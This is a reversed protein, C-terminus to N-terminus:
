LLAHFDSPKSRIEAELAEMLEADVRAIHLEYAERGLRSLNMTELKVIGRDFGAEFRIAVSVVPQITIKSVTAAIASTFDLRYDFLDRRIKFYDESTKPLLNLPSNGRAEFNLTVMTPSEPDDIGVEFGELRNLSLVHGDAIDYKMSVRIPTEQAAQALAQLHDHVASLRPQIAARLVQDRHVVRTSVRSVPDEDRSPSSSKSIDVNGM